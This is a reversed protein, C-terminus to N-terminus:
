GGISIDSGIFLKSLSPCPRQPPSKDTGYVCVCERRKVHMCMCVSGEEASLPSDYKVTGPLVPHTIAMDCYLLHIHQTHHTNIHGCMKASGLDM